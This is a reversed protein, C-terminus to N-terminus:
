LLLDSHSMRSILSKRIDSSLWCDPNMKLDKIFAESLYFCNSGQGLWTLYSCDTIGIGHVESQSVEAPSGWLLLSWTKLYLILSHRNIECTHM